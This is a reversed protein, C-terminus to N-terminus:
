FLEKHIAKRGGLTEPVIDGYGLTSMISTVYESASLMDWMVEDPIDALQRIKENYTDLVSASAIPNSGSQLLLSLNQHYFEM